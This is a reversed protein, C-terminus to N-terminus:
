YIIINAVNIFFTYAFYILCKFTYAYNRKTHLSFLYTCFPFGVILIIIHMYLIYKYYEFLCIISGKENYLKIEHSIESFLVVTLFYFVCFIFM